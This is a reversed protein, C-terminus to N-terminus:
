SSLYLPGEDFIMGRRTVMGTEPWPKDNRLRNPRNRPAKIVQNLAPSVDVFSVSFRDVPIGPQVKAEYVLQCIELEAYELCLNRHKGNITDSLGM